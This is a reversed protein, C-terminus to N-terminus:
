ISFHGKSQDAIGVATQSSQVLLALDNKATEMTVMLKEHLAQALAEIDRSVAQVSLWDDLHGLCTGFSLM